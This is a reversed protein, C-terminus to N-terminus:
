WRGEGAAAAFSANRCFPATRIMLSVMTVSKPSGKVKQRELLRLPGSSEYRAGDRRMQGPPSMDPNCPGRRVEQQLCPWERGMAKVVCHAQVSVGTAIGPRAPQQPAPFVSRASTRAPPFGACSWVVKQTAAVASAVTPLEEDSSAGAQSAVVRFWEFGASCAVLEGDVDGGYCTACCPCMGLAQNVATSM